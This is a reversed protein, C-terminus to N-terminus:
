TLQKRLSRLEDQVMSILREAEKQAGKDTVYEFCSKWGKLMGELYAEREKPSRTKLVPPEIM